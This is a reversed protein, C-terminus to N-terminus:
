MPCTLEDEVDDVNLGEQVITPICGCAEGTAASASGEKVNGKEPMDCIIFEPSPDHLPKRKLIKPRSPPSLPEVDIAIVEPIQPMKRRTSSATSRPDIRPARKVKSANPSSVPSRIVSQVKVRKRLRPDQRHSSALVDRVPSDSTLVPVNVINSM